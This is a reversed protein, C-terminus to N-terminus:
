ARDDAISTPSTDAPAGRRGAAWCSVAALLVLCASALGIWGGSRMSADPFQDSGTISLPFGVLGLYFLAGWSGGIAFLLAAVRANLVNAIALVAIVAVAVSLVLPEVAFWVCGVTGCDTLSTEEQGESYRVFPVFTAVAMGIAGVLAPTALIGAGQMSRPPGSPSPAIAATARRELGLLVSGAVLGVACGLIALAPGPGLSPDGDEVSMVFGAWGIAGAMGIAGAVIMAIGTDHGRATVALLGLVVFGAVTVLLWTALWGCQVPADACDFFGLGEGSPATVVPLFVSVLTVAAAVFALLGVWRRSDNGPEAEDPAGPMDSRREDSV